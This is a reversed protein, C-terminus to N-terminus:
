LLLLDRRTKREARRFANSFHERESLCEIQVKVGSDRDGEADERRRVPVVGDFGGSSVDLTLDFERLVAGSPVIVVGEDGVGSLLVVGLLLDSVTRAAVSIAPLGIM